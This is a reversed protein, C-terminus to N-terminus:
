VKVSPTPKVQRRRMHKLQSKPNPPPTQNNSEPMVVANPTAVVGGRGFSSYFQGLPTLTGDNNFLSSTGMLPDSLPKSRWSYRLVYVRKELEQLASQMFSLVQSAPYGNSQSNTTDSSSVAFETIWLPLNYKAYVKDVYSLFNTLSPSGYWHLCIFNVRPTYTSTGAMFRDLWSNASLLDGSIAPSGLLFASKELTPWLTLAQSVDLNSQTSIDPENFCLLYPSYFGLSLVQNVTTASYVM